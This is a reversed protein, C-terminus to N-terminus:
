DCESFFQLVLPVALSASLSFGYGATSACFIAIHWWMSRLRAREIPFDRLSGRAAKVGIEVSSPVNNNRRYQAEVIRFDRDLILGTIYSGM